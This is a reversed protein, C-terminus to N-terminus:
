PELEALVRALAPGLEQEHASEYLPSDPERLLRQLLLVGRAGVPRGDLLRTDLQRLLEEDRRAEVRRLPSASPLLGPRLRHLTGALERSLSALSGSAVLEEIRWRVIESGEFADTDALILRDATRRIRRLEARARLARVAAAIAFCCTAAAGVLRLPPDAELALAVLALALLPLAARGPRPLELLDFRPVPTAM